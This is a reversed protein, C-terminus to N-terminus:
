ARVLRRRDSPWPQMALVTAVAAVNMALVAAMWWNAGHALEWVEVPIYATNGAISFWRAWSRGQWLGAAEVFRLAAYGAVGWLVLDPPTRAWHDMSAAARLANAPWQWLGAAALAAAALALCGKAAEWAALAHWTRYGGPLHGRRPTEAM